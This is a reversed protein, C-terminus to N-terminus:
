YNLRLLNARGIRPVTVIYMVGYEKEDMSPINKRGSLAAVIEPVTNIHGIIMVRRGRNERLVRRALGKPDDAPAVIPLIGLRGAQPAATLRNRLAASIYIADLRGADKVDGFM